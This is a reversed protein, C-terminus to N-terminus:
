ITGKVVFAVVTLFIVSCYQSEHAERDEHTEHNM